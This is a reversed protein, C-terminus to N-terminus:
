GQGGRWAAALLQRIEGSTPSCESALQVLSNLESNLVTVFAAARTSDVLAKIRPARETRYGPTEHLTSILRDLEAETLSASAHEAKTITQGPASNLWSTVAALTPADLTDRLADVAHHTMVDPSMSERIWTDVSEPMAHCTQWQVRSEEIITIALTSLQPLVGADDLIRQLTADPIHHQAAGPTSAMDLDITDAQAPVCMLMWGALVWTTQRTQIM